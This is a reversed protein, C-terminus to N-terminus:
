YILVEEGGILQLLCNTYHEQECGECWNMGDLCWELAEQRTKIEVDGFCVIKVKKTPNKISLIGKM